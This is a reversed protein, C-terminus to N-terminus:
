NIDYKDFRARIQRHKKKIFKLIFNEKNKKLIEKRKLRTLEAYKYEKKERFFNELVETALLFGKKMKFYDTSMSNEHTRYGVLVHNQILINKSSYFLQVWFVWDEHNELHENFILNNSKLISKRLLVCHPPFSKRYEWDLIIESKYHNLDFDQPLYRRPNVERSVDNFPRYDCLVIDLGNDLLPVQSDLKLNFLTDDSDLLQIYIGSAQKLGFNRASSLGGNEKYFYKFRQDKKVWDLAINETQDKSGDNVIICEWSTYHQDFVSQLCEELFQAQNYCPIIISVLSPM